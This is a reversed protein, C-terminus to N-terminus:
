GNEEEKEQYHKVWYFAVYAGLALLALYWIYHAIYDFGYSFLIEFFAREVEKTKMQEQSKKWRKEEQLIHNINEETMGEEIIEDM